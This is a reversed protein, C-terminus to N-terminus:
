KEEAKPIHVEYFRENVNEIDEIRSIFYDDIKFVYDTVEDWLYMGTKIEEKKIRKPTFREEILQNIVNISEQEKYEIPDLNNEAMPVSLNDLAKLCQNKTLM